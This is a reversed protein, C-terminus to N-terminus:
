IVEDLVRKSFTEHPAGQMSRVNMHLSREYVVNLFISFNALFIELYEEHFHAFEEM